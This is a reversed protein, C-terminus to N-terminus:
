PRQVANAAPPVMPFDQLAYIRTTGSEFVLFLGRSLLADFAPRFFPDVRRELRLGSELARHIARAIM